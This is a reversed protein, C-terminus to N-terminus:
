GIIKGMSIGLGKHHASGLILEGFRILWFLDLSQGGLVEGAQLLFHLRDFRIEFRDLLRIAFVHEVHGQGFGVHLFQQQVDFHNSKERGIM